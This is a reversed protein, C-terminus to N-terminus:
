IFMKQMFGKKLQKLSNLKEKEKEIKSDISSLFNAIKIQEQIITFSINLESLGSSYLHVVSSGQAITSIEYKKVSNLLYSLYVGNISENHPRLINLDGGLIVNEIMLASACSIDTATEGSSPIIVDNIKSLFLKKDINTKSVVKRIVERYTTYLEGYLICPYGKNSLDAKSLPTGKHFTVLDKLKKEKSKPYDNGNEDKFRIEQSFIKQMMGEKYKKLNIYKDKQKEIKNNILTFFNAIKTQEDISPYKIKMDFFDQIGVNLLGHNRAGEVAIKYIEKYWKTTEFYYELYEHNNEKSEFCIYLSSLVGSEYRNLKKIVGYPYGNSYSKNYAFNNRSLLYYNELNKSAVRKNFYEEQDILGMEASITLVHNSENNSNRTTVRNVLYSLNNKKWEEDFEPFRLEPVIKKEM